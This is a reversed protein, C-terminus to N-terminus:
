DMSHVAQKSTGCPDQFHYQVACWVCVGLSKDWSLRIIALLWSSKTNLWSDASDGSYINGTFILLSFPIIYDEQLKLKTNKFSSNNGWSFLFFPTKKGKCATMPSIFCCFGFIIVAHLYKKLIKVKQPGSTGRQSECLHGKKDADGRFLHGGRELQCLLQFCLCVYGRHVTGM